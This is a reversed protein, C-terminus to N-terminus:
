EDVEAFTPMVGVTPQCSFHLVAIRGFHNSALLAKGM